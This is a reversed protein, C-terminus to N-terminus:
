VPCHCCPSHTNGVAEGKRELLPQRQGQSRRLLSVALQFGPKRDVWRQAAPPLTGGSCCQTLRGRHSNPPGLTDGDICSAPRSLLTTLPHAPALLLLLARPHASMDSNGVPESPVVFAPDPGPHMSVHDLVLRYTGKAFLTNGPFAGSNWDHDEDDWPCM